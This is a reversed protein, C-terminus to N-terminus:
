RNKIVEAPSTAIAGIMGALTGCVLHHMFSDRELSFSDSLNSKFYDYASLESGNM